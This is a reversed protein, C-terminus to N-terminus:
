APRQRRVDGAPLSGRPAAVRLAARRRTRPPRGRAAHGTQSPQALRSRGPVTGEWRPPDKFNAPARGRSRGRGGKAIFGSFLRSVVIALRARLRTRVGTGCRPAGSPARACARARSPRAGCPTPRAPTHASRTSPTARAAPGHGNRPHRARPSRRATRSGARARGGRPASGRRAAASRRECRRPGPARPIRYGPATPGGSLARHSCGRRRGRRGIRCRGVRRVVFVSLRHDVACRRSGTLRQLFGMRAASSARQERDVAPAQDDRRPAGRDPAAAVAVDDQVVGACRAPM